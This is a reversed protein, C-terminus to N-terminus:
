GCYYLFCWLCHEHGPSFDEHPGYELSTQHPGSLSDTCHARAIKGAFDATAHGREHNGEGRGYGGGGGRARALNKGEMAAADM